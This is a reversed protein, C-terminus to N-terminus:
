QVQTHEKRKTSTSDYFLIHYSSVYHLLFLPGGGGRLRGGGCISPWVAARCSARPGCSRGPCLVGTQQGPRSMLGDPWKTLDVYFTLFHHLIHPKFGCVSPLLTPSVPHLRRVLLVEHRPTKLISYLNYM